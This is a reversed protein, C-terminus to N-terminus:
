AFPTLIAHSRKSLHQWSVWSSQYPFVSDLSVNLSECCWCWSFSDVWPSANVAILIAYSTIFSSTRGTTSLAVAYSCALIDDSYLIITQDIECNHLQQKWLLTTLAWKLRYTPARQLGHWSDPHLWCTRMVDSNPLQEIHNLCQMKM